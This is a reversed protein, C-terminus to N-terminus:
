ENEFVESRMNTTDLGKKIMQGLGQRAVTMMHTDDGQAYRACRYSLRTLADLLDDTDPSRLAPPAVQEGRHGKGCHDPICELRVDDVRRRVIGGDGRPKARHDGALGGHQGDMLHEGLLPIIEEAQMRRHAIGEPTELPQYQMKRERM